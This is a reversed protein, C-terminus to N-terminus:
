VALRWAGPDVRYGAARLALLAARIEELGVVSPLVAGPDSRSWASPIPVPLTPQVWAGLSRLRHPDPDVDGPRRVDEHETWEDFHQAPAAGLDLDRRPLEALVDLEEPHM